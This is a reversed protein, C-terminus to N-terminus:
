DTIEPGTSLVAERPTRYVKIKAKGIAALMGIQRSSLPTAKTLIKQGKQIDSATKMINEDKVVPSFISVNSNARETHELMVVADAGQPITAGTVIEATKDKTVKTKPM